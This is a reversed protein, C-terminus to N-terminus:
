VTAPPAVAQAARSADEKIMDSCKEGVMM